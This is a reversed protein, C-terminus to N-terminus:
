NKARQKEEQYKVYAYISFGVVLVIASGILIYKLTNDNNSVSSTGTDSLTKTIQQVSPATTKICQTYNIPNMISSAAHSSLGIFDPTMGLSNFLQYNM